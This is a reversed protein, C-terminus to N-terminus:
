QTITSKINHTFLAVDIDSNKPFYDDRQISGFFYIKMDLYNKLKEFFIRNYEPMINKTTEM